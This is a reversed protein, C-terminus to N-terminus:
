FYLGGWWYITAFLFLWVVDVFHWYWAAAEFGFHHTSTFHNKILRVLCVTLFITGILVHLGHFGTALYFTSGYIGDSIRFPAEVYELGQLYTFFMGLLVTLVLSIIAQKRKAAVIAHHSWTITFGSLLLILTNCLPIEWPNFVLIGKPPWVAGIEISPALSSAFFAWFFAFFFMVESVIFLIMGYRLGKQVIKTHHGEFTSERIVDRWWVFMTYLVMLLGLLLVYNGNIFSHMYMVGGVTLTLASFAGMIPWPSVNVLHYAHRRSDKQFM